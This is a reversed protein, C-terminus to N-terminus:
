GLSVEISLYYLDLRLTKTQILPDPPIKQFDGLVSLFHAKILTKLHAYAARPGRGVARIQPFAPAYALYGDKARVIVVSYEVFRGM